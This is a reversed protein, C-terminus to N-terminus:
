LIVSDQSQPFEAGTPVLRDQKESHERCVARHKTCQLHKCGVQQFLSGIYKRFKEVRLGLSIDVVAWLLNEIPDKSPQVFNHAFGTEQNGGMSSLVVLWRMVRTQFGMTVRTEEIKRM